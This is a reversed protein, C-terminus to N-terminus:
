ILIIEKIVWFTLDNSFRNNWIKWTKNIRGYKWFYKKNKYSLATTLSIYSPVL